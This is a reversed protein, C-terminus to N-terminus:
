KCVAAITLLIAGVIRSFLFFVAWGAILFVVKM